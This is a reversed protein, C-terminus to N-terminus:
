VFTGHTKIKNIFNQESHWTFSQNRFLYVVYIFSGARVYSRADVNLEELCFLCQEHSLIEPVGSVLTCKIWLMCFYIMKVCRYNM